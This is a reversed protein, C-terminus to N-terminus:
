GVWQPGARGKKNPKSDQLIHILDCCIEKDLDAAMHSHSGTTSIVAQGGHHAARRQWHGGHHVLLFAGLQRDLLLRGFQALFCAATESPFIGDIAATTLASQEYRPFSGFRDLSLLFSWIIVIVVLIM